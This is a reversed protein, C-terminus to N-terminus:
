HLICEVKGKGGGDILAQERLARRLCEVRVALVRSYLVHHIGFGVVLSGFRM